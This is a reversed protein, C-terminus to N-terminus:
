GFVTLSAVLSAAVRLNFLVKAGLKGIDKSM